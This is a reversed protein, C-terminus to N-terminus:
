GGEETSRVQSSFLTCLGLLPLPLPLPPCIQQDPIRISSSSNDYLFYHRRLFWDKPIPLSAGVFLRFPLTNTNDIHRQIQPFINSGRLFHFEIFKFRYAHSPLASMLFYKLDHTASLNPNNIKSLSKFNLENLDLYIKPLPM